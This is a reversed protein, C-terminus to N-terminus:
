RLMLKKLGIRAGQNRFVKLLEDMKSLNEDLICLDDAYNLDLLTTGGWKIGHGGIAKGTSRQVFNMLIIWIFPSLVCDQKVGSKICFWNSVENGLMKLCLISDSFFFFFWREICFITTAAVKISKRVM